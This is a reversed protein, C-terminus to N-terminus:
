GRKAHTDYWSVLRLLRNFFPLKILLKSALTNDGLTKYVIFIPIYRAIAQRRTLWRGDLDEGFPGSAGREFVYDIVNGDGGPIRRREFHCQDVVKFRTYGLASLTRFERLLVSWSVKSSEISLYTPAAQAGALDEVCRMDAGEIDIKLYHPCGHQRLIDAFRICKVTITESDAGMLQNRAAWDPDATGWASNRRNVYYVIEEDREGIANAILTYTGDAIERSFRERLWEALQPNAEVAVVRYGLKLYYDSDEGRHAGVDYVLGDDIAADRNHQM